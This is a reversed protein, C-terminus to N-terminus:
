KDGKTEQEHLLKLGIDLLKMFCDNCIFRLRTDHKLPFIFGHITAEKCHECSGETPEFEMRGLNDIWHGDSNNPLRIDIM